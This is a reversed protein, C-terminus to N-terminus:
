EYRLSEIITLRRATRRPYQTALAAIGAGLLISAGMAGWPIPHPLQASSIASMAHIMVAGLGLGIVAGALSGIIGIAVAELALSRTLQRQTMGLAQQLGFTWRREAVATFATDALAVAACLLTALEIARM